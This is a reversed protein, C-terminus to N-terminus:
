GFRYQQAKLADEKKAIINFFSTLWAASNWCRSKWLEAAFDDSGTAKGPKMRRLATEVEEASVTQIPGAVPEARSISPHPFEETSIKEFYDRWRWM